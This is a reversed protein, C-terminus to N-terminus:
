EEDAPRITNIEERGWLISHVIEVELEVKGDWEISPPGNTRRTLEDVKFGDKELEYKIDDTIGYLSISGGGNSAYQAILSYVRDLLEAKSAMQRAQAATIRNM